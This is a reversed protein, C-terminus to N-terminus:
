FLARAMRKQMRKIQRGSGVNNRQMLNYAAMGAGFALLSTLTRNM